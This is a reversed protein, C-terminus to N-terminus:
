SIVAMISNQRTVVFETGHLKTIQHGNTSFLVRQGVKVDNPIFVGKPSMKGPGSAVVDGIDELFDKSDVLFVGGDSIEKQPLRKIIVVDGVAKVAKIM